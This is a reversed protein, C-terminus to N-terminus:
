IIYKTIMSTQAITEQIFLFFVILQLLGTLSLTFCHVLAAVSDHTLSM